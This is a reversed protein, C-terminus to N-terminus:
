SPVPFSNLPPIPSQVTTEKSHQKKLYIMVM